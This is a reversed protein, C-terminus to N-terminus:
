DMTQCTIRTSMKSWDNNRFVVCSASYRRSDDTSGARFCTVLCKIFFIRYLQAVRGWPWRRNWSPPYAFQAEQPQKWPPLIMRAGPYDKRESIIIRATPHDSCQARICGKAPLSFASFIGCVSSTLGLIVKASLHDEKWIFLSLFSFTENWHSEPVRGFWGLSIQFRRKIEVTQCVM